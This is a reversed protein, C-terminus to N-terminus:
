GQEIVQQKLWEEGVKRATAASKHWTHGRWEQGGPSTWVWQYHGTEPHKETDFEGVNANGMSAM